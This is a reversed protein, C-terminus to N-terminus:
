KNRTSSLRVNIQITALVLAYGVVFAIIGFPTSFYFKPGVDTFIIALIGSMAAVGALVYNTTVSLRKESVSEMKLNNEEQLMEGLRKLNDLALDKGANDGFGILIFVFSNIWIDDYKEKVEMLVDKSSRSNMRRAISEFEDKIPYPLSRSAEYFISKLDGYKTSAKLINDIGRPLQRQMYELDSTELSKVVKTVYDLLFFPITIGLLYQNFYVFMVFVLGVSGIILNFYFDRKDLKNKQRLTFTLTDYLKRVIRFRLLRNEGNKKVKTKGQLKKMLKYTRYESIIVKIGLYVIFLLLINIVQEILFHPATYKAVFDQFNFSSAGGKFIDMFASMKDSMQTIIDM